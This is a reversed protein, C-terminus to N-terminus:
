IPYHCPLMRCSDRTNSSTRSVSLIGSLRPPRCFATDSAAPATPQQEHHRRHDRSRLGQSPHRHAARRPLHHHCSARSSPQDLGHAQRSILKLQQRSIQSARQAGSLGASNKAAPERAGLLEGRVGGRNPRRARWRRRVAACLKLIKHCFGPPSYAFLSGAADDLNPSPM